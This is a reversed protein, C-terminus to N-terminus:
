NKMQYNVKMSNHQFIKVARILLKMHYPGKAHLDKVRNAIILNHIMKVFHTRQNSQNRLIIERM